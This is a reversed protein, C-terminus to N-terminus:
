FKSDSLRATCQDSSSVGEGVPVLQLRLPPLYQQFNARNAAGGALKEATQLCEDMAKAVDNKDTITM